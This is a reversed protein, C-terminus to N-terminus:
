EDDDGQHKLFDQWMREVEEPTLWPAAILSAAIWDEHSPLENM